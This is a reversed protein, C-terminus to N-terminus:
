KSLDFAKDCKDAVHKEGCVCSHLRTLTRRADFCEAGNNILPHKCYTGLHYRVCLRDTNLREAWEPKVRRRLRAEWDLRDQKSPAGGYQNPGIYTHTHTIAPSHIHTCVVAEELDKSDEELVMTIITIGATAAVEMNAAEMVAELIAKTAMTIAVMAVM